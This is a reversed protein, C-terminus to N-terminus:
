PLRRIEVVAWSYGHQDARQQADAERWAEDLPMVDAHTLVVQSGWYRAVAYGLTGPPMEPVCAPYDPVPEHRLADILQRGIM